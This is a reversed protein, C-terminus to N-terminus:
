SLTKLANEVEEVCIEANLLQESNSFSVYELESLASFEDSSSLHSQSLSGFFSRFHNLIDTKNSISQGDVVLRSCDSKHIHVNLRLPHNVEVHLIKM